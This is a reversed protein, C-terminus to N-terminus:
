PNLFPITSEPGRLLDRQTLLVKEQLDALVGSGFPRGVDREQAGNGGVNGRAPHVHVAHVLLLLSFEFSVIDIYKKLKKKKFRPTLAKKLNPIFLHRKNERDARRSDRLRKDLGQPQNIETSLKQTKQCPEALGRTQPPPSARSTGTTTDPQTPALARHNPRVTSM